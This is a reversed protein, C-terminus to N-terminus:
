HWNSFVLNIVIWPPTLYSLFWYIKAPPRFACIVGRRIAKNIHSPGRLTEDRFNSIITVYLLLEMSRPAARAIHAPAGDILDRYYNRYDVSNTYKYWFKYRKIFLVDIKGTEFIHSLWICITTQGLYKWKQILNLGLTGNQHTTRTMKFLINLCLYKLVIIM